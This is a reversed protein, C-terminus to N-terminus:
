YFILICNCRTLLVRCASYFCYVSIVVSTSSPIYYLTFHFLTHPASVEFMIHDSINPQGNQLAQLTFSEWLDFFSRLHILVPHALRGMDVTGTILFCVTLCQSSTQIVSVSKGSLRTHYPLM